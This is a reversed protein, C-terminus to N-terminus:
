LRARPASLNWEADNKTDCKQTMWAFGFVRIKEVM